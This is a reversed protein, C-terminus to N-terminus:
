YERIYWGKTMEGDPSAKFYLCKFDPGPYSGKQVVDCKAKTSFPGAVLKIPPAANAVPAAALTAAVAVVATSLLKKM